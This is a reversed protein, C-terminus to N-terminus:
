RQFKSPDLSKNKDLFKSLERAVGDANLNRVRPPINGKANKLENIKTEASDLADQTEDITILIQRIERDLKLNEMKLSDNSELLLKNQQKLVSIDKEYMDMPKSPRFIFSLVLAVALVIIVIKETSLKM